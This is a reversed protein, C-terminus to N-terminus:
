DPAPPWAGVGDIRWAVLMSSVAKTLTGRVNGDRSVIWLEPNKEHPPFYELLVWQSDPSWARMQPRSYRPLDFSAVRSVVGNNVLALKGDDDICGFTGDPSQLCGNLGFVGPVPFLPGEQPPVTKGTDQQAGTRINVEVVKQPGPASPQAWQVTDEGTWWLQPGMPTMRAGCSLREQGAGSAQAVVFCGDKDIYLIEGPIAGNPHASLAPPSPDHRGFAFAIVLIVALLAFGAFVGAIYLRTRM